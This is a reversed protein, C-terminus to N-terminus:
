GRAEAEALDMELHDEHVYVRLVILNSTGSDSTIYNTATIKAEQQTFGYFTPIFKIGGAEIEVRNRAERQSWQIPQVDIQRTELVSHGSTPLGDEDFTTTLQKVDYLAIM